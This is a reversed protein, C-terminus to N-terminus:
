EIDQYRKGYSFSFAREKREVEALNELLELSFDNKYVKEYSLWTLLGMTVVIIAFANPLDDASHREKPKGDFILALGTPQPFELDGNQNYYRSYELRNEYNKSLSADSKLYDQVTMFSFTANHVAGVNDDLRRQVEKQVLLTLLEKKLAKVKLNREAIAQPLTPYKALNLEHAAKIHAAMEPDEKEIEDFTEKSIYKLSVTNETADPVDSAAPIKLDGSLRAALAARTRNVLDETEIGAVHGMSRKQFDSVKKILAPTWFEKPKSNLGDIIAKANLKVETPIKRIYFPAATASKQAARAVSSSSFM